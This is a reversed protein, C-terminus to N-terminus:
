LVRYNVSLRIKQLFMDGRDDPSLLVGLLYGASAFLLVSSLEAREKIKVISTVHEEL